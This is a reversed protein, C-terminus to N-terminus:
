VDPFSYPNDRAVSRPEVHLVVKGIMGRYWISKEYQIMVAIQLLISYNSFAMIYVKVQKQVTRLVLMAEQQNTGKKSSLACDVEELKSLYSIVTTYQRLLLYLESIFSLM